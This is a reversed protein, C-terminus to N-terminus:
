LEVEKLWVPPNDGFISAIMTDGWIKCAV